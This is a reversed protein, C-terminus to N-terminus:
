GNTACCTPQMRACIACHAAMTDTIRGQITALSGGCAACDHKMGVAMSHPALKGSVNTTSHETVARTQCLACAMAPAVVTAAVPIQGAGDERQRQMQDAQQSSAGAYASGTLILSLVLGCLRSSLSNTVISNM